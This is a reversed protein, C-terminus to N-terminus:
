LMDWFHSKIQFLSKLLYINRTIPLRSSSMVWCKYSIIFYFEKLLGCTSTILSYYHNKSFTLKAETWTLFIPGMSSGSRPSTLDPYMMFKFRHSHWQLPKSNCSPRAQYSKNKSLFLNSLLWNIVPNQMCATCVLINDGCDLIIWSSSLQTEEKQYSFFM